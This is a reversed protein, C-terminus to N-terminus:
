CFDEVETLPPHICFARQNLPPEFGPQIFNLRRRAKRNKLPQKDLSSLYFGPAFEAPRIQNSPIQFYFYGCQM